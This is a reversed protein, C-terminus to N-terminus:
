GGPNSVPTPPPAHNTKGNQVPEPNAPPQNAKSKAERAALTEKQQPAAMSEQSATQIAVDLLKDQGYCYAEFFDVPLDAEVGNGELIVGDTHRKLADSSMVPYMFVNGSPLTYFSCATVAGATKEGVVTVNDLTKLKFSLMEKASRTLEDTIAVVPKAEQRVTKEIATVATIIGGRGRLDLVIADCDAFTTQLHSRLATNAKGSMLNWFRLYGFKQGGSEIIRASANISDELSLTERAKVRETIWASGPCHQFEFRVTEGPQADIAFVEYRQEEGSLVLRRSAEITV